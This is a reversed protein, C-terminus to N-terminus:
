DSLQADTCRGTLGSTTIQFRARSGTDQARHKELVVERAGDGREAVRLVTGTWHELTNGGLPQEAEGEIGAYVQNTILVAIDHKRALSLLKTVQRAIDRLAEGTDEGGEKRELRYFGTASDLVLVDTDEVFSEVETIANKQGDFDYVEQTVVRELLDDNEGPVGDLLQELRAMSLGETDIVVGRGGDAAATVVTSMALNTKGSGPPGYLQTVTGREFGGNLLEDITACGTSLRTDRTM